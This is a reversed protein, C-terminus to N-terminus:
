ERVRHTISNLMTGSDILPKTPAGYTTKGERVRQAAEGVTKGTVVLDPDHGRMGRLMVTVASLPPQMTNVISEQIEEEIEKGVLGLAKSADFQNTALATGLNPGWKDANKQIANRFFPRPPIGRTPAGFEQIAAIMAVSTGDAETAGEMFGVDVSAAKEVKAALEKLYAELKAGGKIEM